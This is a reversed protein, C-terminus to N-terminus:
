ERRHLPMRGYSYALLLAGASDNDEVGLVDLLPKIFDDTLNTAKADAHHEFTERDMEGGAELYRRYLESRDEIGKKKAIRELVVPFMPGEEENRDLLMRVETRDM